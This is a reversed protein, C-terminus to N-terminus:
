GGGMMQYLAAMNYNRNEPRDYAPMPEMPQPAMEAGRGGMQRRRQGFM